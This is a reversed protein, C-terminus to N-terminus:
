RGARDWARHRGLATILATTMGQRGTMSFSEPPSHTLGPTGASRVRMVGAAWRSATGSPGRCGVFVTTTRGKEALFPATTVSAATGYAVFEGHAAAGCAHVM